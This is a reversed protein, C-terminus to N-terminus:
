REINCNSILARVGTLKIGGINPGYSTTAHCCGMSGSLITSLGEVAIGRNFAFKPIRPAHVAKACASYDGISDLVSMITAIFFSLFGAASFSYGVLKGKYNQRSFCYINYNPLFFLTYILFTIFYEFLKVSILTKM